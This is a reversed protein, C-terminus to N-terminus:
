AKMSKCVPLDLITTKLDVSHYIEDHLDKDGQVFTCILKTKTYILGRYFFFRILGLRVGTIRTNQSATSALVGSSLVEM